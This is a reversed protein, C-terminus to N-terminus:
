WIPQAKILLAIAKNRFSRQILLRKGVHMLLAAPVSFFVLKRRGVDFKM